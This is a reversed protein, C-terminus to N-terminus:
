LIQWRGLETGCNPCYHVRTKIDRICFPILCCGLWFGVLVLVLCIIWALAGNSEEIRTVITQNCRQCTCQVPTQGFHYQVPVVTTDTSPNVDFKVRIDKQITEYGPPPEIPTEIIAAAAAAPPHENIPLTEVENQREAEVSKMDKM